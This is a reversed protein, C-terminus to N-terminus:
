GARVDLDGLLSILAVAETPGGTIVRVVDDGDDGSDLEGPVEVELEDAEEILM